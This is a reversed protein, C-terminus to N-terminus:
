GSIGHQLASPGRHRMRPMGMRRRSRSRASAAGFFFLDLYRTGGIGICLYLLTRACSCSVQLCAVHYEAECLDCVIIVGSNAGSDGMLYLETDLENDRRCSRCGRGDGFTPLPASSATESAAANQDLRGRRMAAQSLVAPVLLHAQMCFSSCACHLMPKVRDDCRSVQRWSCLPRVQLKRHLPLVSQALTRFYKNRYFARKGPPWGLYWDADDAGSVARDDLSSAPQGNALSLADSVSPASTSAAPNATGSEAAWPPPDLVARSRREVAASFLEEAQIRCSEALGHLPSGPANFLQANAFVQLVDRRFDESCYAAWRRRVLRWAKVPHSIGDVVVEATAVAASDSPAAGSGGADSSVLAPGEEIDDKHPERTLDRVAHMAAAALRQGITRMDCPNTVVTFYETVGAADADLPALFAECSPLSAILRRVGECLRLEELRDMAEKRLAQDEASTSLTAPLPPLQIWPGVLGGHCLDASVAVIPPEATGLAPSVVTGSADPSSSMPKTDAISAACELVYRRYAFLAAERIRGATLVMPQVQQDSPAAAEGVQQNSLSPRKRSRSINISKKKPRSQQQQQQSREGEETDVRQVGLGLVTRLASLFRRIPTSGGEGARRRRAGVVSGGVSAADGTGTSMDDDEIDEDEDDEEDDDAAGAPSATIGTSDAALKARLAKREQKALLEAARVAEVACGYLFAHDVGSDSTSVGLMAEIIDGLAAPPPQQLRSAGTGVVAASNSSQPPPPPAIAEGCGVRLLTRRVVTASTTYEVGIDAPLSAAAGAADMGLATLAQANAHHLVSDRAAATAAPHAHRAEGTLVPKQPPRVAPFTRAYSDLERVQRAYEYADVARYLLDPAHFHATYSAGGVATASGLAGRTGLSSASSFEVAAAAPGLLQEPLVPAAGTLKPSATAAFWGLVHRGSHLHVWSIDERNNVADGNVLKGDEAADFPETGYKGALYTSTRHQAVATLILRAGEAWRCTSFPLALVLADNCMLPM